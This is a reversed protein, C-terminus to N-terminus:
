SRRSHVFVVHRIRLLNDEKHRPSSLCGLFSELSGLMIGTLQDEGM